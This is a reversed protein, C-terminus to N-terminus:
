SYSATLCLQVSRPGTYGINDLAIGLSLVESLSPEALTQHRVVDSWYASTHSRTLGVVTNTFGSNFDGYQYSDVPVARDLEAKWARYAGPDSFGPDPDHFGFVPGLQEHWDWPIVSEGNEDLVSEHDQEGDALNVGWMIEASIDV